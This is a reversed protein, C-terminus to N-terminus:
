TIAKPEFNVIIAIESTPGRNESSAALVSHRQLTIKKGLGRYLRRVSVHNANTLLIQAGRAAASCVAIALRKQDDWSFLKDNYKIFGNFNHRTVYPPDIFVFDGKTARSLIPEFDSVLLTARQLISATREFEDTELLVADKTGVPVNFQGRLNVRYLGNWCTRNLYLFQAAQEHQARRETSREEYYYDECHNNAHRKLARYVREWNSRIQQYVNILEVNSDSLTAIEPQLHFFVAASGVFPEIYHEFKEPFLHAYGSTLWRKGGAWKLFPVIIPDCDKM